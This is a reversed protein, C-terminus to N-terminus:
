QASKRDTLRVFCIVSDKRSTQYYQCIRTSNPSLISVQCLVIMQSAQASDLNCIGLGPQLAGEMPTKRNYHLALAIQMEGGFDDYGIVHRDQTKCSSVRKEVALAIVELLPEDLHGAIKSLCRPDCIIIIINHHM